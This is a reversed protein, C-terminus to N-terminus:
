RPAEPLPAESAPTPGPTRPTNCIPCNNRNRKQRWRALLWGVIGMAAAGIVAITSSASQHVLADYRILERIQEMEQPTLPM